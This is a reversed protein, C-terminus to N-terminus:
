VAVTARHMHAGDDDLIAVQVSQPRGFTPFMAALDELDGVDPPAYCYRRWELKFWYPTRMKGEGQHKGVPLNNLGEEFDEPQYAVEGPFLMVLPEAQMICKRGIYVELYAFIGASDRLHLVLDRIIEFTVRTEIISTILEHTPVRIPTWDEPEDFAEEVMEALREDEELEKEIDEEIFLLEWGEEIAALEEERAQTRSYRPGPVRVANEPAAGYGGHVTM